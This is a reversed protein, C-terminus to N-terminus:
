HTPVILKYGRGHVNKISVTPDEQLMKRLKTVYVDISRANFYNDEPWIKNMAYNRELTENTHKCLEFLLACEKTTLKRTSNGITLTQEISNFTFKGIQFLTKEEETPAAIRSRRTVADIRMLLEEMSFPKTVYDDAGVSFGKLIDEKMSKASLFIIPINKSIERIYTAVQFGDKKPMMVDLLCIDYVSAPFAACGKEGDTFLDVEFGKTELIEKLLFGFSEEDECLLIRM